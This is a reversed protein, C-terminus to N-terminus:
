LPTPLDTPMPTPLDTPNSINSLNLTPYKINNQDLIKTIYNYSNTLLNDVSPLITTFNENVKKESKNKTNNLYYTGHIDYYSNM